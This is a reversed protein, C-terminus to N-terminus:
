KATWWIILGLIISAVALGLILICIKKRSKKQYYAARQLQESAREVHVEASEVNAEISDIMDGQDHIMMALDKFIQNVDLIDAELQRIATEREKILELDQETIAVDDEQSQMQNWDEGSDFSVLQEERFREDASIRSGARARAVTEKEKESVQRQVAQFNNLAASFDNMLREKQLRQQRQESASLPLPLSGLEKLYENTEKALCNASHQLQQLNEQLKSSDQKTGLQSMLNKIQAAS